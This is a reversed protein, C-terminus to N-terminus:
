LLQLIKKATMEIQEETNLVEIHMVHQAMNYYPARTHLNETMYRRMEEDTKGQLLPRSNGHLRNSIHIHAILTDVSAQLYVTTAHRNMYEMNDFFCPTGGGVAIVASRKRCVEHLMDRETKRFWEEGKDAFIESISHGSQKEIYQDLDSFEYDMQRALVRGITTKGAGMYGILVVSGVM